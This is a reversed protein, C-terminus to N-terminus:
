LHIGGPLENGWHDWGERTRRAFMELKTANPYMRELCEQVADPKRSHEMKPALITQVISEDHLPLPRGKAIPSFALVMEVTPKVISPRVGQAKVLEGAKTTKCWVFAVGRYNGAWKKGLEIAFDLRPCTAWMFLIGNSSLPITMALLEKDDM